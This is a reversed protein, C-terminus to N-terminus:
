TTVSHFCLMLPDESFTSVIRALGSGLAPHMHASVPIEWAQMLRSLFVPTSQGM